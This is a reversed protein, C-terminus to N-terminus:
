SLRVGMGRVLYPLYARDRESVRGLVNMRPDTPLDVRAIELEGAYRGYRENSVAVTGAPRPMPEAPSLLGPSPRLTTRSEVSRFM